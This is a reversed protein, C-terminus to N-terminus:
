AQQVEESSVGRNTLENRKAPEEYEKGGFYGVIFAVVVMLVWPIYLGSIAGLGYGILAYSFGRPFINAPMTHGVIGMFIALISPISFVPFSKVLIMGVLACVGAYSIFNQLGEKM